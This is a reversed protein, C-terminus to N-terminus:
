LFRTMEVKGFVPPYKEGEIIENMDGKGTEIYTELAQRVSPLSLDYGQQLALQRSEWVAFACLLAFSFFPVLIIWWRYRKQVIAALVLLSAVIEPLYEVLSIVFGFIPIM